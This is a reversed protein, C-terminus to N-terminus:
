SSLLKKEMPYLMGVKGAYPMGSLVFGLNKWYGVRDSISELRIKPIEFSISLDELVLYLSRGPKVENCLHPFLQNNSVVDVIIESESDLFSIVGLIKDDAEYVWVHKDDKNEAVLSSLSIGLADFFGSEFKKISDLFTTERYPENLEFTRREM